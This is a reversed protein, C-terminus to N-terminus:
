SKMEVFMILQNFLEEALYRCHEEERKQQNFAVRIRQRLRDHDNTCDAYHEPVHPWLTHKVM